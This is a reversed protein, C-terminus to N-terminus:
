RTKDEDTHTRHSQTVEGNRFTTFPGVWLRSAQGRGQPGTSKTLYSVESRFYHEEWYHGFSCPKPGWMSLLGAKWIGKEWIDLCGGTKSPALGPWEWLQFLLALLHEMCRFVATGGLSEGLWPCSFGPAPDIFISQPSCSGQQPATGTVPRVLM